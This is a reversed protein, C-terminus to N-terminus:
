KNLFRAIVIVQRFQKRKGELNFLETLIIYPGVPLKNGYDDLGDWNWSGSIGITENRILWRVLRGGSDYIRANAVYGPADVNFQIRAIDDMGDNDPSFIKPVQLSASPQSVTVLQSNRYGPTAYGASTAASHWNEKKNGPGAPDIRELSVGERNALLKFHWDDRYNVEDIIEGQNNLLIVDGEDDPYSPLATEFIRGGNKVLYQLSLNHIDETILVYDGPFILLSKNTFSKISGLNGQADRNALFLKSADIIKQSNNFLEIFDNANPRPDFLIENIIMDTKLAEAPFGAPVAKSTISNNTCDHINTATLRYIKNKIMPSPLKVRASNFLPALATATSIGLNGDITYNSVNSASSSDVPENFLVIITSSDPVLCNEIFPAAQDPVQGNASNIQGPTGGAPHTSAKWNEISLCPTHTDIMELSWGGLKKLDNQYWDASYHLGHIVRGTADRLYITEEDNDLSPFNTVAITRGYTLLSNYASSGCIILLSDPPLVIAPFAGSLGTEDALRWNQLSVPVTGTNRIEVWEYNPLSVVPTPDAMIEDIIVDYRNQSFTTITVTFLFALLLTSKM